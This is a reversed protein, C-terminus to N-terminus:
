HNSYFDIKGESTTFVSYSIKFGFFEEPVDIGIWYINSGANEYIILRYNHYRVITRDNEDLYNGSVLDVKTGKGLTFSKNPIRLLFDNIELM